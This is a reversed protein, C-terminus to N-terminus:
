WEIKDISVVSKNLKNSLIKGSKNHIVRDAMPAIAQNHTIVIVTMGREKSLDYLLKLVAKGKETPPNLSKVHFSPNVKFNSKLYNTTSTIKHVQMLFEGKARELIANACNYCLCLQTLM